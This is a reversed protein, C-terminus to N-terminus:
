DHETQPSAPILQLAITVAIAMAIALVVLASTRGFTEFLTAFVFASVLRAVAIVVTVFAIGSARIHGPVLQSVMAPIVGDTAAYYAGLLGLCVISVGVTLGSFGLLLYLVILV